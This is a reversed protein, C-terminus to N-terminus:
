FRPPLEVSDVTQAKGAQSARAYAWVYADSRLNFVEAPTNASAADDSGATRRLYLHETAVPGNVMLPRNCVTSNLPANVARDSCTNITGNAGRTLLWADVHGVNNTIEIHNAIIVVQPIQNLATFSAGSTGTYTIDGDIKVTGSSVIIISKGIGAAQGISSADITVNGVSYTGSDMAGLNGNFGGPVAGGIFQDTITPLGDLTYCGFGLSCPATTDANAFTLWHWDSAATTNATGNNFKAGSAFGSNTGVSFGGYEVWSGFLKTTGADNIL